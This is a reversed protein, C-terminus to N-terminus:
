RPVNPNSDREIRTIPFFTGPMLVAESRPGWDVAPIRFRYHDHLRRGQLFLQTQRMHILMDVPAPQDPGGSWPTLGDASRLVNIHRAFGDLDGAALRTEAILLHLERASVIVAPPYLGADDFERAIRDVIPSVTGTDILDTITTAGFDRGNPAPEIYPDGMRFELRANVWSGTASAQTSVSYALAFRWDVDTTLELAAAADAAAGPSSV